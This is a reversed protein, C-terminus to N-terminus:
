RQYADLIIHKNYFEQQKSNTYPVIIRMTDEVTEITTLHPTTESERLFLILSNFSWRKNQLLIERHSLLLRKSKRLALHNEFIYAYYIHKLEVEYEKFISIFQETLIKRNLDDFSMSRSFNVEGDDVDIKEELFLRYFKDLYNPDPKFM